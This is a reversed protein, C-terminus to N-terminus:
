PNISVRHPKYKSNLVSRTKVNFNFDIGALDFLLYAVDAICIPKSQAARLAMSLDNSENMFQPSCWVMFPVEYVAKRTYEKDGSGFGRGYYNLPADYIQEGHDSFYIIVANTNRFPEIIEHLVYDNYLTANDYDAVTQREDDSLDDRKIDDTSFHRFSDPFRNAADFHQGKLHIINLSKRGKLFANRYLSVFPGDYETTEDNRYDFCQNSINVPNLFYGCSYDFAGGSSRTYQNDFYAVRFGAKRFVAPMLVFPHIDGTDTEECGKLTFIFRMAYDTGNTPSMAHTFCILNGSQREKELYPSTRLKYGYLSSHQKNFSEGIVLVITPAEKEQQPQLVEIEGITKEMKNIEAHRETVFDFSMVLENVTNNGLPFPLPLFPISLGAVTGLVIVVWVWKGKLWAYHGDANLLRHLLYLCGAVFVLFFLTIPSLLYVQFFETAEQPTTQLMLTLINPNFRSSFRLYLYCELFFLLFLIIAAAHKLFSSRFVLLLLICSYAFSQVLAGAFLAKAFHDPEFGAPIAMLLTCVVLFFFDSKRM